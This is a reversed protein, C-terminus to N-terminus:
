PSVLLRKPDSQDVLIVGDDKFKKLIFHSVTSQVGKISSLKDSVFFAVDKLSDGSVEILLDYGGSLLYVSSVEPFKYIAEAVSNFGVKREPQVQVEILAKVEDHNVRQWNINTKYGLIINDNEFKEIYKQVESEKCDLQKAIDSIEAKADNSLIELVQYGKEDVKYPKM